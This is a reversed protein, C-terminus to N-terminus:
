HCYKQFVAKTKNVNVMMEDYVDQLEAPYDSKSYLRNANIAKKGYECGNKIDGGLFADTAKSFYSNSMKITYFLEDIPVEAYSFNSCLFIIVGFLNKKINNFIQMM